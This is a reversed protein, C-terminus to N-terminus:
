AIQLFWTGPPDASAGQSPLYECNAFESILSDSFYVFVVLVMIASAAFKASLLGFM